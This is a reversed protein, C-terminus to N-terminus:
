NRDVGGLFFIRPLANYWLEVPCSISVSLKSSHNKSAHNESFPNELPITKPPHWSALFAAPPTSPSFKKGPFHLHELQWWGKKETCCAGACICTFVLLTHIDPTLFVGGPLCIWSILCSILSHIPFIGSQARLTGCSSRFKKITLLQQGCLLTSEQLWYLSVSLM